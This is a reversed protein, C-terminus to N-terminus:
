GYIEKALKEMDEPTLDSFSDGPEDIMMSLGHAMVLTIVGDIKMPSDTSPKVLKINGAPDSTSETNSIMWRLVPNGFHVIKHEIILKEVSKIHENMSKYGQRFEIMQFGDDDGLRKAINSANWPDYAIADFSYEKKFENIKARIVEDDITRSQIINLYGQKEWLQYEIRKKATESPVWCWMLFALYEPFYLGFATIDRSSSLDMAGFCKKGKLEELDIAAGSADWDKLDM